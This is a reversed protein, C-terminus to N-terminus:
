FNQKAYNNKSKDALIEVVTDEPLLHKSDEIRKEPTSAKDAWDMLPSPTSKSCPAKYNFPHVHVSEAQVQLGAKPQTKGSKKPSLLPEQPCTVNIGHQHGRKEGLVKESDRMIRPNDTNEIFAARRQVLGRGQVPSSPSSGKELSGEQRKGKINPYLWQFYNKMQNRFSEPPSPGKLSQTSCSKSGLTQELTRDQPHHSRRRPQCTGLGADGGGLEHTKLGPPTMTKATAPCNKDQGKHFDLKPVWPGQGHKMSTQTNDLHVHLVQSVAMNKFTTGQDHKLFTKSTLINSVLPIGNSHGEKQSPKGKKM